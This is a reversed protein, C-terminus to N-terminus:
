KNRHASLVGAVAAYRRVAVVAVEDVLVSLAEAGGSDDTTTNPASITLARFSGGEAM